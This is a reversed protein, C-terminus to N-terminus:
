DDNSVEILSSLAQLSSRGHVIVFDRTGKKRLAYREEELYHYEFDTHKIERFLCKYIKDYLRNFEEYSMIM